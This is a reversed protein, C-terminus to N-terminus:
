PIEYVTLSESIGRLNTRQAVPVLHAAALLRTAEPHEIVPSTAFISRSQALGQVRAAINVTQGFYDLRENLMVALCPGEHLGIKVTLDGASGGEARLAERMRLAAALGREPTPFTAMVADGITKVVAGSEMAVAENLVRFHSQVLEYAALDGVREYLETSGKLDSFLFTLSTIKLRQSVDLADTRYVDQFTQNTLLRKATLFRKRKGLLDHLADGAMFIGPLVRKDTRNELTLRLPGPRMAITATQAHVKNYVVTLEQRERTPEGKVDVFQASHTVPDFVIIFVDPLQVSLICKEGAPLEVSDLVVEQIVSEFSEEPIDIGSSWFVQRQYEWIPLRDPDHAAIRRVRPSVTFAVEVLEDLTPEYGAACLACSYQVRKLTKLTANADLVGGCGPCLLNWSMDFLGLRSAHVFASLVRDENFGHHAAFELANVRNLARDSGERALTEIAAAVAGDASQRLVSFRAQAEDPIRHGASSV